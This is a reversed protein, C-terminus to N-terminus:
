DGESRSFDELAVNEADSPERLDLLMYSVNVTGDAGTATRRSFVGAYKRGSIREEGHLRELYDDSLRQGVKGIILGTGDPQFDFTRSVPTLGLLEGILVLQEDVVDVDRIRTRARLVAYQDLTLERDQEVIKLAASDKYLSEFFRKVSIFVRRDVSELASRYAADSSGSFSALVDDVVSIARKIPSEFMPLQPQDLEQLEFGFSGHVVNTINLRSSAPAPVPGRQALTGVNEAAVQKSVLEQYESLTRSAFTADIGRSGVVPGGEFSLVVTGLTQHQDILEALEAALEDRRYSLSRRAIFDDEEVSALLADLASIESAVADRKQQAIM